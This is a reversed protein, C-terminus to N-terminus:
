TIACSYRRPTRVSVSRTMAPKTTSRCCTIETRWVIPSGRVMTGAETTLEVPQTWTEAGDTSTRAVIRSTSWTAGHRTVSFLWVVGDPAQWVVANGEPFKPRPQITKPMSWRAEGKRRRAGRVTSDDSYEGAGGYYVLYLDGIQLQTISAPHKYKGPIEPGFVCEAMINDDAIGSHVTAFCALCLALVSFLSRM